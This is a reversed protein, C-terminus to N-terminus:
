VVNYHMNKQPRQSVSKVEENITAGQLIVLLWFHKKRWKPSGLAFCSLCSFNQKWLRRLKLFYSKKRKANTETGCCSNNNILGPFHSCTSHSSRGMKIKLIRCYWSMKTSSWMNESQSLRYFAARDSSAGGYWGQTANEGRM